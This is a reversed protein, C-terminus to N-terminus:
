EEEFDEDIQEILERTKIKSHDFPDLLKVPELTVDEVITLPLKAIDFLLTFIKM